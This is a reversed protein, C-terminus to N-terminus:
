ILSKIEFALASWGFEMAGLGKANLPNFYERYGEEKILNISNDGIKQVWSKQNYKALGMAVFFNINIWVTGRWYSSPNFNPDNVALTPIIWKTGFVDPNRLYDVMTKVQKHSAINIILPFYTAPTLVPIPKENTDIYIDQFFSNKPNWLKEKISKSTHTYCREWYMKDDLLGLVESIRMMAKLSLAFLSNVCVPKVNFKSNKILEKQNWKLSKFEDVLEIKFNMFNSRSYAKIKAPLDWRASDDWGSEWPHIISILGDDDHDRVNILFKYYEKIAPYLHILYKKKHSAKYLEYLAWGIIPPQILGSRNKIGWLSMSAEPDSHYSMHPLFGDKTQFRTLSKLENFALEPYNKRLYFAHFCSDWFWQWPYTKLDPCIYEFDKGSVRNKLLLDIPTKEM